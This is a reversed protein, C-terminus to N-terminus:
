VSMISCPEAVACSARPGYDGVYLLIHAPITLASRREQAAEVDCAVPGSIGQNRALCQGSLAHMLDVLM